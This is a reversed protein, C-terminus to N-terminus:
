PAETLTLIRLGAPELDMAVEDGEEVRARLVTRAGSSPDWSVLPGGKKMMRFRAKEASWSENFLLVIAERPPEKWAELSIPDRFPESGAGGAGPRPEPCFILLLRAGPRSVDGCPGGKSCRNGPRSAPACSPHRKRIGDDNGGAQHREPRVQRPLTGLISALRSLRTLRGAM